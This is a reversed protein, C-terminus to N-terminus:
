QQQRSACDTAAALSISWGVDRIGSATRGLCQQNPDVSNITAPAHNQGPPEALYCNRGIACDECQARSCLRRLFRIESREKLLTKGEMLLCPIDLGNRQQFLRPTQL